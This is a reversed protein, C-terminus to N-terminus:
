RRTGFLRGRTDGATGQPFENRKTMKHRVLNQSRFCCARGNGEDFAWDYDALTTTDKAHTLGTLRATGDYAYSSEAVLQTGSLNAYRTITDWQGAANYTLDVRKAAVVNGGSQGQQTVRTMRGLNDYSFDNVFDDTTGLAAALSTRRGAADFTQTM